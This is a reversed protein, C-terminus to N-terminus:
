GKEMQELAKLAHDFLAQMRAHSGVSDEPVQVIRHVFVGPTVVVEPDLEGVEVIEDVEAITVDCAMAIIPNAGRVSGRYILNGRKDAKYARVFGFQARIPKEFLYEKGDIVRKEKGKEVITGVGVPTYFGGLGSGGARVREALTGHSMLDLEVEGAAIRRELDSGRAFHQGYVSVGPWSTIVKKVQKSLILPTYMETDEFFYDGIRGPIVNHSVLTLDKSGKEYLAKILLRPTSRGLTWHFMMVSAGDKIDAVAEEFTSVVKNKM